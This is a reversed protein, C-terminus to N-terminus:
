SASQTGNKVKWADIRPNPTTNRVVLSEQTARGFTNQFRGFSTLDLAAGAGAGAAPAAGSAGATATSGKWAQIGGTIAKAGMWGGVIIFVLDQIWGPVHRMADAWIVFQDHVFWASFVILFVWIILLLRPLRSIRDIWIDYPDEPGAIIPASPDDDDLGTVSKLAQFVQRVQPSIINGLGM